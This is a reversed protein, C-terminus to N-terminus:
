LRVPITAETSVRNPKKLNSEHNYFIKGNKYIKCSIRFNEIKNDILIKSKFNLYFLVGDKDTKKPQGYNSFEAYKVMPIFKLLAIAKYPYLASGRTIKRKGQEGFNIIYGTALNVVSKGKINKHYYAEAFLNLKARSQKKFM